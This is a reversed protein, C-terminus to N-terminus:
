NLQEGNVNITIDGNTLTTTELVDAICLAFLSTGALAVVTNLDNKSAFDDTPTAPYTAWETELFRTAGQFKAYDGSGFVLPSGDTYTGGSPTASFWLFTCPISQQSKDVMSVSQIIIDKGSAYNASTFELIGGIVDGAIYTATAVTPTLQVSFGPPPTTTATIGGDILKQIEYAVGGYFNRTANVTATGATTIIRIQDYGNNPVIIRDQAALTGSGTDPDILSEVGASTILRYRVPIFTGSPGAGYAKIAPTSTATLVEYAIEECGFTKIDAGATTSISMSGAAYYGDQPTGM